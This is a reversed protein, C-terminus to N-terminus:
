QVRKHNGAKKGLAFASDFPKLIADITKSAFAVADFKVVFAFRHDITLLHKAPDTTSQRRLICFANTADNAM